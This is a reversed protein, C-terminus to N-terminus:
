AADGDEDEDEDEPDYTGALDTDDEDEPDPEGAASILTQLETLGVTNLRVAGGGPGSVELAAPMELGFLKARLAIIQRVEGVARTDVGKGVYQGEKGYIPREETAQPWLAALMADLREGEQQRYVSVEAAEDDRNTELARILDKSAAGRSAYGLGLIRPDDFPVGQRRLRVLQARRDATEAQQAKSAPM